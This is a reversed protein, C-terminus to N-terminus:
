LTEDLLIKKILTHAERGKQLLIPDPPQRKCSALFGIVDSATIDNKHIMLGMQILFRDVDLLHDQYISITPIGLVAAERTMTGGAGVFIDCNEMIYDLSLSTEQVKIGSFRGDSYYAAQSAGRPLLVVNYNEKLDLILADIFNCRGKYYQATWPEPRIFITECNKSQSYHKQVDSQSPWLYVGEKVGPYVIIKDNSAWQKRVKTLNLFEPVMITDAFIFSIRNGQAYENDNLYICRVGLMKSVIPSYFSSHSISVDINKNRLFKFLLHSRIGFGAIKNFTKQGYHEGVIHYDFGAMDLLEVTNSLPRCTILIEHEKKLEKIIRNFFPVHPSNTLDFWIRM